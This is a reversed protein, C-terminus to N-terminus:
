GEEDVKKKKKKKKKKKEVAEEIIEGTIDSTNTPIASDKMVFDFTVAASQIRKLEEDDDSSSVSPKRKKKKVHQKSLEKVEGLLDQQSCCLLKVGYKENTIESGISGIDKKTQLSIDEIESQLYNDLKKAIFKRFEPTVLLASEKENATDDCTRLSPKNQGEKHNNNSTISHKTAIIEQGLQFGDVSERLKRNEEEDSESSSSSM